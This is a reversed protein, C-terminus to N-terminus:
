KLTGALHVNGAPVQVLPGKEDTIAAVAVPGVEAPVKVKMSGNGAADVKFADAAIKQGDPTIYWLEYVKDEPQQQLGSAFVHWTRTNEDILIRGVAKTSESSLDVVKFRATQMVQRIEADRDIISQLMAIQADRRLLEPGLKARVEERASEVRRNTWVNVVVVLFIAAAVAAFSQAFRRLGRYPDHPDPIAKHRMVADQERAIRTMLDSKLEHRPAVPPIAGAFAALTAEAEAHAAAWAPDGGALAARVREAADADLTGAVYELMLELREANTV